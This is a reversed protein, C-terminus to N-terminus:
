KAQRIKTVLRSENAQNTTFQKQGKELFNPMMVKLKYGNELEIVADRFGRDLIMVDGEKLLNVLHFDTKM